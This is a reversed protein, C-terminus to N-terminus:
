RIIPNKKRRRLNWIGFLGLSIPVLAIPIGNGDILVWGVWLGAAISLSAFVYTLVKTVPNRFWSFVFAGLGFCLIGLLILVVTQALSEM